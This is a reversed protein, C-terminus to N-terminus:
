CHSLPPQAPDVCQVRVTSSDQGVAIYVFHPVTMLLWDCWSACAITVKLVMLALRDLPDPLSRIRDFISPAHPGTQSNSRDAGVSGGAEESHRAAHPRTSQVQVLVESERGINAAAALTRHLTCRAAQLFPPQWPDSAAVSPPHLRSDNQNLPGFPGTGSNSVGSELRQNAQWVAANGQVPVEMESINWTSVEDALTGLWVVGHEQLPCCVDLSM